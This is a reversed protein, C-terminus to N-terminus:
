SETTVTSLGFVLLTCWFVSFTYAESISVESLFSLAQEELVTHKEIVFFARLLFPYCTCFIDSEDIMEVYSM